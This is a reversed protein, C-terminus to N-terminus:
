QGWGASAGPAGRGYRRRRGAGRARRRARPAGVRHPRPLARGGARPTRWNRGPQLTFTRASATEDWVSVVREQLKHTTWLPNVLELYHSTRLPWAFMDTLATLRSLLARSPNPETGPRM